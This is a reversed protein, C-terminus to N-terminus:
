ASPIRSWCLLKGLFRQSVIPNSDIDQVPWLAGGADSIDRTHRRIKKTKHETPDELQLPQTNKLRRLSGSDKTPLTRPRKALTPHNKSGTAFFLICSCSCLGENGFGTKMYDKPSSFLGQYLQKQAAKWAQLRTGLRSIRVISGVAMRQALWSCFGHSVCRQRPAVGAVSCIVVCFRM